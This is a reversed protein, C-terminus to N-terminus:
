LVGRTQGVPGKSVGDEGDCHKGEADSRYGCSRVVNLEYVVCYKVRLM